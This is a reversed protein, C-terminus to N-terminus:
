HVAVSAAGAPRALLAEIMRRLALESAADHARFNAFVIRGERDILFNSPYGRVDYAEPTTAGKLPTFSYKTGAMFPLVYDDQKAIGNVGLYVVDKEGRFNAMVKEFHPFEGRCPGCGPFWFTLFVVKGRLGELSIKGTTDYRELAFASAPKAAADRLKWLDADVQTASKGLRAGHALLPARLEDEATSAIRQLLLDYATQLQGAGALVEAKLLLTRVPNSSRRDVPLQDLKAAADTFRGARALTQVEGFTRAFAARATWQKAGDGPLKAMDDALTAAQEPARRLYADFLGNMSSASWNFIEPPFTRRCEEWVSIQRAEDELKAGLWYLAQAGRESQPFRRAVDRMAAEWKEPAIEDLGSAYYFAYDPTAPEAQSARHMYESALKGDGWREADISLMFWGRAFQPDRAVVTLLLEKAKPDEENYLRSARAFIMGISDPFRKQWEAYRADIADNLAKAPAQLDKNRFAAIRVSERVKDVAEHAALFDPAAEIAEALAAWAEDAKPQGAALLPTARDYAARAAPVPDHPAASVAAGWTLAAFFAARLLSDM